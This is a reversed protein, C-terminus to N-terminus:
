NIHIQPLSNPVGIWPMPKVDIPYIPIVKEEGNASVTTNNKNKKKLLIYALVLAGGILLIKKNNIM